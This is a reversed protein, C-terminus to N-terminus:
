LVKAKRCLMALEQRLADTRVAPTSPHAVIVVDVGAKLILGRPPALLGRLQRKL